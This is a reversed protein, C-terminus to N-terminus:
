NSFPTGKEEDTKGTLEKYTVRKDKIQSIVKSFRNGDNM